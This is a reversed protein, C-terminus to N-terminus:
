EPRPQSHLVVLTLRSAAVKERGDDAYLVSVLRLTLPRRQGSSRNSCVFLSISKRRDIPFLEM